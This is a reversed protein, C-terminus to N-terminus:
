NTATPDFWPGSGDGTLDTVTVGTSAILEVLSAMGPLETRAHGADVISLGSDVAAVAQHHDVDGTVLADAGAARAAGAFSAGSGPVVAVRALRDGPQGAVRLGVRGLREGVLDALDALTGSWRGIRGFLAHNSRVDIVDFAPEDYPHAAVVAAVVSDELSRDAIMEVRVEAVSSLGSARGSTPQAGEEARFRGDGATRFSCSSYNGIQGAGASAMAGTVKAEAEEPVFVVVKVKDPGAMPGFGTVDALGLRAALSDSTGRPAADFDTHTVLLAVGAAMLRWARGAPTPGRVLRNTPRFLLPHYSVVVDPPDALLAEVAAETVEHCVAATAVEAGPDGFQLGVPDWGPVRDPRTRRAVETVLSSVTVM